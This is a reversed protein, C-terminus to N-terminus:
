EDEYNFSGRSDMGEQFGLARGEIRVAEICHECVEVSYTGEGEEYVAVLEDCELCRFIDNNKQMNNVEITM